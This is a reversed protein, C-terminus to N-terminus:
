NNIIYIAKNNKIIFEKKKKKETKMNVKQSKHIAVLEVFERLSLPPLPHHIRKTKPKQM